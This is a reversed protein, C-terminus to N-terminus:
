RESEQKLWTELDAIRLQTLRDAERGWLLPRITGGRSLHTHFECHANRYALWKDQADKSQEFWTNSGQTKPLKMESLRVDTERVKAEIQSLLHAMKDEAANLDKAAAINMDTQTLPVLGFKEFTLIESLADSLWIAKELFEDVEKPDFVPQRPAEHCLIHRVEFLRALGGAMADYDGVIPTRPKQMVEVDWRDVASELLPRLPKGLVTEFCGLIQGFSNVPVSHALIDGLTITRGQIDRVLTFDIKVHKSLEIARDTYEKSHDILAALNRRTFVELLTVTRIIYFDPACAESQRNKSWQQHLGELAHSGFGAWRADRQKVDLIEQTRGRNSM